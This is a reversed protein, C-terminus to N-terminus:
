YGGKEDSGTLLTYLIDIADLLLLFSGYFYFLIDSVKFYSNYKIIINKLLNNDTNKTWNQLYNNMIAKKNNKTLFNKYQLFSIIPNFIVLIGTIILLIDSNFDDLIFIFFSFYQLFWRISYFDFKYPINGFLNLLLM